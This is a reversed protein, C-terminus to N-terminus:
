PLFRSIFLSLSLDIKFDEDEKLTITKKSSTSDEEEALCMTSDDDEKNIRPSRLTTIFLKTKFCLM